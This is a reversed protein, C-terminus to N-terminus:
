WLEYWNTLWLTLTAASVDFNTISFYQGPNLKPITRYNADFASIVHTDCVPLVIPNYAVNFTNTDFIYILNTVNFSAYNKGWVLYVTMPRTTTNTWYVNTGGTSAWQFSGRQGANWVVNSSELNTLGSGDGTFSAATVNSKSTINGGIVVTDTLNTVYVAYQGSKADFMGWGNTNVTSFWFLSNNFLYDDGWAGGLAPANYYDTTPNITNTRTLSGWLTLNTGNGANNSIYAGVTNTRVALQWLLNTLAQTFYSAAIVSGAPTFHTGDTFYNTNSCYNTNGIIPDGGVDALGDAFTYWNTRIMQNLNTRVTNYQLLNTDGSPTITAVITSYGMLRLQSICSVISNYTQQASAYLSGEYIDNHGLWFLIIDRSTKPSQAYFNQEFVNYNSAQQGYWGNIVGNYGSNTGGIANYVTSPYNNTGTSSGSTPWYLWTLSDGIFILKSTTGTKYKQTLYSNIAVTEDQTITRNIIIFESLCGILGSDNVGPSLNVTANGISWYNTMPELVGVGQNIYGLGQQEIVISNGSLVMGEVHPSNFDVYNITEGGTAFQGPLNRLGELEDYYYTSGRNQYCWLIGGGTFTSYNTYYSQYVYYITLSTSLNKLINTPTQLWNSGNFVVGPRGGITNNFYTPIWNTNVSQNTANNRSNSMDPWNTLLSNNANTVQSADLWLVLNTGFSQPFQVVYPNNANSAVVNSSQLNTLGSGDGTFSAATVNSKSTINGGIVVTDTLNTVYVAYQGSKADFMGWGNTNVTSFWFLSNNFLYDDGWAGGLAPANYYDTTPNITNTRTLSGWLTLNTGNGANNSVYSGGGGGGSANVTVVGGNTITTVNTGPNIGVPTNTTFLNYKISQGFLCLPALMWLLALLKLTKM